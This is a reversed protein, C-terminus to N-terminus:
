QTFFFENRMSGTKDNYVLNYFFKGDEIEYYTVQKVAVTRFSQSVKNPLKKLGMPFIGTDSSNTCVLENQTDYINLYRTDIMSLIM